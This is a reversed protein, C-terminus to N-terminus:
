GQFRLFRHFFGQEPEQFIFKDPEPEKFLHDYLRVEADYAHKVSVWHLTGKVKRGDDSWGGKTNADYTCHVETINGDNDKIVDCHEFVNYILCLKTVSM